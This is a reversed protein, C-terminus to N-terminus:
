IPSAPPWTGGPVRREPTLSRSLAPGATYLWCPLAGGSSTRVEAAVRRFLSRETGEYADLSPLLDSPCRWVEGHVPEEGYLVLAPFRGDIDYLAGGVTGHDVRECGALLGDAGGGDRLTGYAFLHFGSM